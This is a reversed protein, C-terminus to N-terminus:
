LTCKALFVMPLLKRDLGMSKGIFRLLGPISINIGMAYQIHLPLIM